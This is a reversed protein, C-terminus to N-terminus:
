RYEQYDAMDYVKGIFMNGHMDDIKLFERFAEPQFIGDITFLYKHDELLAM